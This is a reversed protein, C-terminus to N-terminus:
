STIRIWTQTRYLLALYGRVKLHNLNEKALWIKGRFELGNEPDFLKGGTFQGKNDEVMNKIVVLGVFPKDKDEGKCKVCVEDKKEQQLVEIIKGFYENDKEYIEVVAKPKGTKDDITKWKGLVTQGFSNTITFISVLLVLKFMKM